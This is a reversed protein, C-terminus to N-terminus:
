EVLEVEGWLAIKDGACAILGDLRNKDGERSVVREVDEPGRILNALATAAADAMCTDGSLAVVADARGFSLSPGVVGSSTCVGVGSKANVRFRVKESFPSDEGAYLAFVSEKETRAFVDGGNEVVVEASYELLGRGVYESVAGAVAAMPGVGFTAGARCMARVIEPAEEGATLPELSEFFGPHSEEYATIESRARRVLELTDKELKSGAMVLLDTEAERVHFARLRDCRVWNRYFRTEYMLSM